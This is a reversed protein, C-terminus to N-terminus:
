ALSLTIYQFYDSNVYITTGVYYFVGVGFNNLVNVVGKISLDYIPATKTDFAPFPNVISSYNLEVFTVLNWNETSLDFSYLTTITNAYIPPTVSGLINIQQEAPSNNRIKLNIQSKNGLTTTM